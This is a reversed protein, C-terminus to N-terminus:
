IRFHMHYYYWHKLTGNCLFDHPMQLQLEAEFNNSYMVSISYSFIIIM